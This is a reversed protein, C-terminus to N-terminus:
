DFSRCSKVVWYLICIRTNSFNSHFRLLRRHTQIWRNKWWRFRWSRTKWIVSSRLLHLGCDDGAIKIPFADVFSIIMIFHCFFNYKWDRWYIFLVTYPVQTYILPVSIWDYSLLDGVKERIRTIEQLIDSVYRRPLLGKKEVSICFIMSIDYKLISTSKVILVNIESSSSWGSILLNGAWNLPLWYFTSVYESQDQAM